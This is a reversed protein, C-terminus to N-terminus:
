PSLALIISRTLQHGTRHLAQNQIQPPCQEATRLELRQQRAFRPHTADRQHHDTFALIALALRLCAATDRSSIRM